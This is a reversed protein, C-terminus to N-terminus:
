GAAAVAASKYPLRFRAAVAPGMERDAEGGRRVGDFGDGAALAPLAGAAVAAREM